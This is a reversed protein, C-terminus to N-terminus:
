GRFTAWRWARALAFWIWGLFSNPLNRYADWLEWAARETAKRRREAVEMSVLLCSARRALRREGRKGAHVIAKNTLAVGGGFEGLIYM